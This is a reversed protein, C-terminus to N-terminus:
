KKSFCKKMKKGAETLYYYPSTPLYFDGMYEVVHGNFGKKFLYVGYDPDNKDFVGKIGYFNYVKKNLKLAEKIMEWQILYQGFFNMYEKYGGAHFYMVENGFILYMATALYLHKGQKTIIDEIEQIKKNMDNIQNEFEKIQGEKHHEIARDKSVQLKELDEHLVEITENLDVEAVVYSIEETPNFLDYMKYYYDLDKEAFNHRESTKDCIEKFIPLENRNLKRVKVKLHEAKQISRRTNGNMEKLIVDENKGELPLEYSWRVMKTYDYYRIFGFHKFGLRKLTEFINTNDIGGEVIDGNIDREKYILTPDIHLTYGNEKKIYNKLSNVFFELLKTNHYDLILGRPSYFIKKNFRTTTYIIRAGAVIQGEEKVGLYITHWNKMEDIEAMRPDQYFTYLPSNKAFKLFEKANLETFEM